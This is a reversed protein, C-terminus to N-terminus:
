RILASISDYCELSSMKLSNFPKFSMVYRNKLKRVYNTIGSMILTEYEFPDRLIGDHKKMYRFFSGIKNFVIAKLVYYSICHTEEVNKSSTLRGITDDSALTYNNYMLVNLSQLMIFEREKEFVLKFPRKNFISYLAINLLCAYADTFSENMVVSNRTTDLAFYSNILNEQTHYIKPQSNNYLHVMEHILVKTMEETRYVIINHGNITVGSNVNESTLTMNNLKPKVKKLDCHILQIKIRQIPPSRSHRNLIHILLNIIFILYKTKKEDNKEYLIELNIQVGEFVWDYTVALNITNIINAEVLPHIYSSDSLHRQIWPKVEIQPKLSRFHNSSDKMFNNFLEHITQFFADM